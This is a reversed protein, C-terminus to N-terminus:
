TLMFLAIWSLNAWKYNKKTQKNDKAGNRKKVLSKTQPPALHICQEVTTNWNKEVYPIWQQTVETWNTITRLKLLKDIYYKSKKKM